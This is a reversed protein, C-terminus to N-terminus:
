SRMESGLEIWFDFTFHGNFIELVPVGYEEAKDNVFEAFDKATAGLEQLQQVGLSFCGNYFSNAIDDGYSYIGEDENVDELPLNNWLTKTAQMTMISEKNFTEKLELDSLIIM